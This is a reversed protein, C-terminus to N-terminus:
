ERLKWCSIKYNREHKGAIAVMKHTPLVVVKTLPGEMLRKRFKLKGEVLDWVLFEGVYNVLLLFELEDYFWCLDTAPSTFKRDFLNMGTLVDSVILTGDQSSSALKSFDCNFALANIKQPHKLFMKPEEFDTHFNGSKLDARPLNWFLIEGSEIGIVIQLSEETLKYTLCNVKEELFCSAIM